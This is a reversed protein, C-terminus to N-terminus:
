RIWTVPLVRGRSQWGSLRKRVAEYELDLVVCARLLSSTWSRSEQSMIRLAKGAAASSEYKIRLTPISRWDEWPVGLLLCDERLAERQSTSLEQSVSCGGPVISSM